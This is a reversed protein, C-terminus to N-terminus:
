VATQVSPNNLTQSTASIAVFATDEVAVKVNEATNICSFPIDEISEDQKNLM